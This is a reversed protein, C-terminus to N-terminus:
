ECLTDKRLTKDYEAKMQDYIEQSVLIDGNKSRGVLKRSRVLAMDADWISM